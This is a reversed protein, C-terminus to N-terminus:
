YYFSDRRYVHHLQIFNPSSIRKIVRALKAPTKKPKKGGRKEQRVRKFGRGSLKSFLRRTSETVFDGVHKSIIGEASVDPSTNKAIDTIIKGGTRCV